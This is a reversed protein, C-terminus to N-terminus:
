GPAMCFPPMLILENAPDPKCETEKAVAVIRLQEVDKTNVKVTVGAAYEGPQLAGPHDVSQALVENGMITAYIEITAGATLPAAGLNGLQYWLELEDPGSCVSFCEEPTILVLDPANLGDAPSLDGSRFNNYTAWNPPTVTPVSLDDNIHTISYAHQNWLQRGPRWSSTADGIVTIGSYTGNYPESAVVIEVQGDNDVDAVVPLELRTGSNHDAFTLKTAGDIGSFVYLNIEDAYVVDAIGDGEFDYVSSGTIGSSADTTDKVWLMSGDTDIVTYKSQGAVGVEPFGDGDYDAITPPGGKGGPLVAMWIV